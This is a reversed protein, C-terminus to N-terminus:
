SVKDFFYEYKEEGLVHRMAARMQDTVSSCRGACVYTWDEGWPSLSLGSNPLSSVNM